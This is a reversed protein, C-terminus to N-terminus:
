QTEPAASRELDDLRLGTRFARSLAEEIRNALLLQESTVSRLDKAFSVQNAEIRDLQQSMHDLLRQTNRAQTAQGDMLDAVALSLRNLRELTLDRPASTM